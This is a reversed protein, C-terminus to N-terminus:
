IESKPNARLREEEDKRLKPVLFAILEWALWSCYYSKALLCM